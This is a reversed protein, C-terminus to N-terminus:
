RVHVFEMSSVPIEGTTADFLCFQVWADGKALHGFGQELQDVTFRAVHTRGDCVLNDTAHSQSWAAAIQSSGEEALAPDATRDATQKVSTWLHLQEPDGTCSYRAQVLATTQGTLQVVGVIDASTRGPADALAPSATAVAGLLLGFGALPALLKKV